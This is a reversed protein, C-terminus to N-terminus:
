QMQNLIITPNLINAGKRALAQCSFLFHFEDGVDQYCLHCKRESIDLRIWRGTEIPLKHNRTRFLCLNKKTQFPLKQLYHEQEFKIKFIRYNTAPPSTDLKTYWEIFTKTKTKCMKCALSPQRGEATGFIWKLWM